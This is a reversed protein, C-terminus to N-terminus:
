VEKNLRRRFGPLVNQLFDTDSVHTGGGFITFIRSQKGGSVTTIVCRVDIRCSALHIDDSAHQRDRATEPQPVVVATDRILGEAM